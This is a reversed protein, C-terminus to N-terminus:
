GSEARMSSAVKTKPYFRAALDLASHGDACHEPGVIYLVEAGTWEVELALVCARGAARLDTWGWMDKSIDSDIRDGYNPKKSTVFHFRLSSISM